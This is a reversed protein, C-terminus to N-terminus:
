ASRPAPHAKKAAGPSAAGSLPAPPSPGAPAHHTGTHTHTHVPPPPPPRPAAAERIHGAGPYGEGERPARQAGAGRASPPCPRAPPLKTVREGTDARFPFPSPFGYGAASVAPARPPSRGAGEAVLAGRGAAGPAAPLSGQPARRARRWAAGRSPFPRPFSGRPSPLPHPSPLPPAPRDARNHRAGSGYSWRTGGRQPPSKADAHSKYSGRTLM